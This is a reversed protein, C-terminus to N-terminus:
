RMLDVFYSLVAIFFRLWGILWLMFLMFLLMFLFHMFFM